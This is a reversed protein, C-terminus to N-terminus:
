EGPSKYKGVSHGEATYESVVRDMGKKELEFRVQECKTMIDGKACRQRPRFEQMPKVSTEEFTTKGFHCMRSCKWSKKQCPMKNHLVSSYQRRLAEEIDALDEPEFCLTFPGGARAYFITVLIQKDPYLKSLAYAYM